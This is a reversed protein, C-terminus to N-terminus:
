QKEGGVGKSTGINVLKQGSKAVMMGEGTGWRDNDTNQTEDLLLM